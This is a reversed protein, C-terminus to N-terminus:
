PRGEMEAMVMRYLHIADAHNDDIPEVGYRENCAAIMAAKNANGKGTAFRKIENASYSCYDIGKDICAITLVGIMESAVMKPLAHMGAPREYAVITIADAMLIDMLKARFRVNRMGASEGRNPKLDWIGSGSPSCWGTITAIDLALLRM